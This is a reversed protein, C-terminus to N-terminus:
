NNALFIIDPKSSGNQHFFTDFTPELHQIKNRLIMMNLERGKENYPRNYGFIGHRANIDAAIIVPLNNRIAYLLDEKPLLNKRPPSYNTM